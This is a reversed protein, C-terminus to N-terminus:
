KGMKTMLVRYAPEVRVSALEPDSEILRADNWGGVIMRQLVDLAKDSCLKKQEPDATAAGCLAFCRAAQLLLEGSNPTSTCVAEAAQRSEGMKGARALALAESTQWTLNKLEIRRLDTWVTLADQYRKAAEDKKNQRLFSWASREHTDAVLVQHSMDDPDHNLVAIVLTKSKQYNKDADDLKGLRVQADGYRGLIDALDAKYDNSNPFRELLSDYLQISKEFNSKVEDANGERGATIGLWLKAEALYSAAVQNKPEKDLWFERFSVAEEFCRRAEALNGTAVYAKGLRQDAFSMLRKNATETYDNSRPHDAIEKQLEYAEKYKKIAASADGKLELDLDGLRQLIVGLNARATDSDPQTDAVQKILDHALRFQRLADEGQGIRLLLDGMRQHGAATGFSTIDKKELDSSMSVITERLLKLLDDRVARMEPQSGMRRASLRKQLKEGLGLMRYVELDHNKKATEANKEARAANQMAAIENTRAIEANQKAAIENAHAIEANREADLRAAETRDKQQKVNYALISSTTAWAALALLFLGSLVAMRPNRRCWRGFREVSSIPRAHIAEGALFRGLDEALAGASDYRKRPEKQLCKLCITELDRPISPAFQIPAVPEQTRVQQLTDLVSGAKFPARGTLLEYLIAGLSYVDSCPGIDEVRGEAQEPAMYSPTGVIAGSHTQASDEELRKALGFDTIKPAGETTLLVNAPKLDRHVIRKQHAAQVALALIQVLRAGERPPQPTGDIKAALSDGEVYEMSFFPQHEDEGVEFIQVINPHQLQAVAEAESRFRALEQTRANDAARIMKLAVVRKLGPQLAKYVVGMAGRGLVGLIEYGAVFHPASDLTGNGTAHAPEAAPAMALGVESGSESCIESAVTAAQDDIAALQPAYEVTEALDSSQEPHTEDHVLNEPETDGDNRTHTQELAILEERLSARETEPVLEVFTALDPMSGGQRSEELAVLFRQRAKVAEPTRHIAESSSNDNQNM